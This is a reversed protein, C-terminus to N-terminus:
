EGSFLSVLYRGTVEMHRTASAILEKPMGALFGGAEYTFDGEYGIEKLARMVKEWDIIGQYPLTHQDSLGDVDHVHLAKLRSSGLKRIMEAPEECVLCAHGIDLCAVFWESDLTDVYRIFEDPRSCVHHTIKRGVYKGWMNEVAVKIQYKECYPELRRYFEMNQKFLEEPVNNESYRLHTRPHVVITEVGLYSANRMSRVVDCFIKEEEVKDKSGTPFPAHAQNFCLGKEEALARLRLFREKFEVSNTAENYFEENFFSFDIADFGAEALLEVTEECSFNKLYYLETHASLRM